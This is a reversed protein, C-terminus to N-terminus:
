ACLCAFMCATVARLPETGDISGFVLCAVTFLVEFARMHVYVFPSVSVCLYEGFAFYSWAGHYQAIHDDFGGDRAFLHSDLGCVFCANGLAARRAM